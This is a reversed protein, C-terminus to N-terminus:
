GLYVVTERAENLINVREFLVIVLSFIFNLGSLYPRAAFYDILELPHKGLYLAANLAVNVWCFDKGGYHIFNTFLELCALFLINSLKVFKKYAPYGVSKFSSILARSVEM